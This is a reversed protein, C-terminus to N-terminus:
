TVESFNFIFDSAQDIGVALFDAKYENSDIDNASDTVLITKCGFKKGAAIDVWRDGLMWSVREDINWKEKAEFLMGAEPKRCGCQVKLERVEGPFGSDPHHPCYFFDDLYAGKRSLLFDLRGMITRVFSAEDIEGRAIVPQNTVCIALIGAKNLRRIFDAVGNKLKLDRWQSIHGCEENIVGDRDLFVAIQNHDLNRKYPIKRAIHANVKQLRDPTGMDKIYETTEYEHINLGLNLLDPIVDQSLDATVRKGKLKNLDNGCFLYIGAIVSNNFYDLKPDNKNCIGIIRKNRSSLVLDSDYPHDNPHTFVFGDCDRKALALKLRSFSIDFYVDGLVIFYQADNNWTHQYFIGGSGLPDEEIIFQFNILDGYEDILASKIREAEYGLIIIFSNIGQKMLQDITHYIVARGKIPLLVKPTTPFAEIMRTGRGGALIVGIM